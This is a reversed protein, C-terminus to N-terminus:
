TSHSQSRIGIPPSKSLQPESPAFVHLGSAIGNVLFLLSATIGGLAVMRRKSSIANAAGLCVLILMAPMILYLHHPGMTQTRSVHVFIFAVSVGLLLTVRRTPKRTVLYAFSVLILFVLGLGFAIVLRRIADGFSAHELYASFIDSYDTTATIVLKPWAIVAFLFFATFGAVIPVRFCEFLNQPTFRRSEYLEIAGDTVAIVFFAIVWFANWRQLIVGALLLAGISLLSVTSISRVPQSFYLWLVAINLGAISIGMYGRVIPVWFPVFCFVTIVPILPWWKPWRLSATGGIGRMAVILMLVAFFAYINLLSLEYVMRSGGLVAMVPAVPLNSTVNYESFRIDRVLAAFAGPDPMSLGPEASRPRDSEQRAAQETVTKREAGQLFDSVNRSSMWYGSFDWTYITRESSVYSYIFLNGLVVFLLLAGGTGALSFKATKTNTPSDQDFYPQVARTKESLLFITVLLVAVSLISIINWIIQFNPHVGIVMLDVISGDNDDVRNAEISIAGTGPPLSIEARDWQGCIRSSDVTTVTTAVQQGFGTLKISDTATCNAPSGDGSMDPLRVLLEARGGSLWIKRDIPIIGISDGVVGAGSTSLRVFHRGYESSRVSSVDADTSVKGSYSWSTSNAYDTTAVFFALCSIVISVPLIVRLKRAGIWSTSYAGTAGFLLFGVVSFMVAIVLSAVLTIAPMGAAGILDGLGAAVLPTLGFAVLISGFVIPFNRTLVRVNM